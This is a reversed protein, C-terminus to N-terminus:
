AERIGDDKRCYTFLHDACLQFSEDTARSRKVNFSLEEEHHDPDRDQLHIAQGLRGRDASHIQGTAELWSPNPRRNGTNVHLERLILFNKNAPRVNKRTVPVPRFFSFLCQTVAPKIGSILALYVGASVPLNCAPDLIQDDETRPM